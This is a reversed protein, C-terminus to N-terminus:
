SSRPPLWPALMANTASQSMPSTVDPETITRWTTSPLEFSYEVKDHTYTQQASAAQALLSILVLSFTVIRKM